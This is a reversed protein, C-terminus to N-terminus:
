DEKKTRLRSVGAFGSALLFALGLRVFNISNTDGTKPLITTGSSETSRSVLPTVQSPATVIKTSDEERNEQNKIDVKINGEKVDAYEISQDVVDLSQELSNNKSDDSSSIVASSEPSSTVKTNDHNAKSLSPHTPEKQDIKTQEGKESREVPQESSKGLYLYDYLQQATVGGGVWGSVPQGDKLYLITPTGPIGVTKFLFEKAEDDFDPSETDYYELQGGILQNFEKLSPSFQRCYYCTGRGVYLTHELGDATFATRIDAITVKNFDAVNAAYEEITVEALEEDTTTEGTQNSKTQSPAQEAVLSSGQTELINAEASEAWVPSTVLNALVVTSLFLSKILTKKM